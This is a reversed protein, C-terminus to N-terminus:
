GDKLTSSEHITVVLKGPSLWSDSKLLGSFYAEMSGAEGDTSDAGNGKLQEVIQAKLRKM